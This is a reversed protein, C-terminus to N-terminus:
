KISRNRKTSPVRTGAQYSAVPQSRLPPAITGGPGIRFRVVAAVGDRHVIGPGSAARDPVGMGVRQWPPARPATEADHSWSEGWGFYSRRIAFATGLLVRPSQARTPDRASRRRRPRSQAACRAPLRHATQRLQEHRVAEIPDISAARRAPAVCAMVVVAVLLRVSSTRCGLVNAGGWRTSGSREDRDRGAYFRSFAV